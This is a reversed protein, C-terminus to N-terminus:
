KTESSTRNREKERLSFTARLAPHPAKLRPVSALYIGDLVDTINRDIDLNWCRLVKYGLTELYASRDKDSQIRSNDSHGAGDVEVILMAEDCLLDAIYPGCPVQRRFKLGALRRDRLKSWLRAEADTQRRRLSRALDTKSKPM